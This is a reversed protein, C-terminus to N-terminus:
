LIWVGNGWNYLLIKFDLLYLYMIVHYTIFINHCITHIITNDAKELTPNTEFSCNHTTCGSASTLMYCWMANLSNKGQGVINNKPLVCMVGSTVM